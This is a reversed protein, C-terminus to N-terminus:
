KDPSNQSGPLRAGALPAWGRLWCNMAGTHM